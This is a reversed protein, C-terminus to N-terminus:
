SQAPVSPAPWITITRAPPDAWRGNSAAIPSLDAVALRADRNLPEDIRQQQQQQQQQQQRPRELDWRATLSRLDAQEIKTTVLATHPV